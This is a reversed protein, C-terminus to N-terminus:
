RHFVRGMDLGFSPANRTGGIKIPISSGTGDKQKFLPDIVKLLISKLGTQTQSIKADLLLSGKFDLTERKLGYTGALQVVAGPVSFQLEPLHLSGHGLKFRGQFNSVVSANARDSTNGRGRHSLENIKGQVDYSTFRAAAIAFHGDLQLRDVVDNDGPPLLFKTVLTLAGTMPPKPTKVAMKMIDEIRAREMDIDLRVERGKNGPTDVVGGKAVLSSQLFSADIRKLLTDGNTGDIVAHYKTHLPFAHGGVSITFDPTETEGNADIRELMGNFSGKSSLMGSIGKFISLDARDFTFTGDLPTRGPEGRQWPGFSGRTIIEGRPIANTLTAQYAMTQDVGIADMHLAHINWVKPPKGADSSIIALRADTSDMTDILVGEEIDDASPAGRSSVGNADGTTAVAGTPATADKSPSADDTDPHRDPPIEIDLGELQVHAVHKRMLGMLDADVSFSKVTILPPVGTRGHQRIVLAEGEARLRPFVRLHLDGLSVESDLRDSLSRVIRHRMSDSSLPVAAALLALVIVVAAALGTGIWIWRRRHGHGHPATVPEVVAHNLM